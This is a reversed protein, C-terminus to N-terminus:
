KGDGPKKCNLAVADCGVKSHNIGLALFPNQVSSEPVVDIEPLGKSKGESVLYAVVQRLCVDHARGLLYTVWASNKRKDGIGPVVNKAAKEDVFYNGLQTVTIKFQGADATADNCWTQIAQFRAASNQTEPMKFEGSHLKEDVGFPDQGVSSVRFVQNSPGIWLEGEKVEDNMELPRYCDNWGTKRFDKANFLGCAKKEPPVPLLGNAAGPLCTNGAGAKGFTSMFSFGKLTNKMEDESHSIAQESKCVQCTNLLVDAHAMVNSLLLLLLSFQLFKTMSTATRADLSLKDRTQAAAGGSIEFFSETLDSVFTEVPIRKKILDTSM